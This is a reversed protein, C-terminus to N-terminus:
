PPSWVLGQRQRALIVVHQNACNWYEHKPTSSNGEPVDAPWWSRKFPPATVEALTTRRCNAPLAVTVTEPYSFRLMVANSDINHVELIDSAQEPLWNPVWGRSVAGASVAESYSKYTTDFTESCAALGVLFAAILIGPPAHVTNM